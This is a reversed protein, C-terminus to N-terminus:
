TGAAVSRTEGFSLRMVRSFSAAACAKVVLAQPPSRDPGRHARGDTLQHAPEERHFSGFRNFRRPVPASPAGPPRLILGPQGAAV